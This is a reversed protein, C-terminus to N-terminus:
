IETGLNHPSENRQESAGQLEDDDLQRSREDEHARYSEALFIGAFAILVWIPLCIRVGIGGPHNNELRWRVV